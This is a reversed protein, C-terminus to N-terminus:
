RPEPPQFTWTYTVTTNGGEPAPFRWGRLRACMCDGVAQDNLHQQVSCSTVTGGKGIEFKLTVRGALTPKQQLAREYCYRVENLHQRLVRRIIAPDLTAGTTNVLAEQVRPVPPRIVSDMPPAGYALGAVEGSIPGIAGGMITGIGMLGLEDDNMVGTIVAPEKVPPLEAGPLEGPRPDAGRPPPPIPEMSGPPPEMQGPVPDMPDTSELEPEMVAADPNMLATELGPPPKPVDAAEKKGCAPAALLGAGLCAAAVWVPLRGTHPTQAELARELRAELDRPLPTRPGSTTSM